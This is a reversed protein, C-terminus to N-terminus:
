GLMEDVDLIAAYSEPSFRRLAYLPQLEAHTPKRQLDVEAVDAKVYPRSLLLCYALKIVEAARVAAVEATYTESFIYGRLSRIGKLLPQYESSSTAGRTAICIATAITDRLVDEPAIELGRYLLEAEAIKFYTERVLNFDDMSGILSCIDYMQKAVELNKGVNVPIGTTKPAFATLKDALICNADPVLVKLPEGANLLLENAIPVEQRHAYHNSEFLVDLLIYTERDARLGDYTFKFHRKVINNKGVRVQEESAKFPFVGSSARIFKDIDTGPEVVIDIDTSLRQPHELLLMLCTGGKFTFPLGVRALAELLGFAFVTRELLSPDCKRGTQLDQVHELTFTEQAIM